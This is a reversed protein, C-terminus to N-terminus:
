KLGLVQNLDKGLQTTRWYREGSATIKPFQGSECAHVIEPNKAKGSRCYNRTAEIVMTRRTDDATPQETASAVIVPQAVLPQTSAVVQGDDDIVSFSLAGILGAAAANRLNTRRLERRLWRGAAVLDVDAAVRHIRKRPAEQRPEAQAHAQDQGTAKEGELRSTEVSESDIQMTM